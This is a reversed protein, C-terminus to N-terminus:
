HYFEFGKTTAPTEILICKYFKWQLLGQMEIQGTCLGSPWYGDLIGSGQQMSTKQM